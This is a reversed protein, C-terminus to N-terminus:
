VRGQKERESLVGRAYSGEVREDTNLILDEVRAALEALERQSYAAPDQNPAQAPAPVPALATPGAAKNARNNAV